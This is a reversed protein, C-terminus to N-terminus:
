ISFKIVYLLIKDTIIQVASRIKGRFFSRYFIKLHVSLELLKNGHSIKKINEIGAIDVYLCLCKILYSIDHITPTECHRIYKYIDDIIIAFNEESKRNLKSQEVIGEPNIRYVYTPVRAFAVSHVYRQIFFNWHVDEHIIGEKFYLKNDKLFSLKILKNWAMVPFRSGGQIIIKRIKNEDEIYDKRYKSIKTIDYVSARGKSSIGGVVMDADSYNDAKTTLISICNPLIQDDSDMFFVYDGTAEDIGTNRAASLGRNHDHRLIRFVITGHYSSVLNEAIEMSRDSGCDDVLLCEMPGQYTQAMVSQLCEKIYPEVNYVPVIISVSIM